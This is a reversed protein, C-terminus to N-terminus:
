WEIEEVDSVLSELRSNKSLVIAGDVVQAMAALDVCNFLDKIQITVGFKQNSLTILKTALLSHGGLNFFNDTIGVREVGLVEQWLACLAIETGTKPAVYENQMETIDFEPLAKRDVKGNANLPLSELFVFTAPVMYDPLRAALYQKYEEIRELRQSKAREAEENLTTDSHSVVYAVLQKDGNDKVAAIVVADKIDSAGTLTNEIEGLEIRFGRIKVQHDIRGIFEINGKRSDGEPLWRVLDGTKYLYKSSTIDGENYFPNVVFKEETLDIRNLYGRAVGTGGVYLEGAIGIPTHNMQEDLVYAQRNALPKGVPIAVDTSHTKPISYCCSFTTNETPGYGNIMNLQPNKDQIAKLSHPNVVDGGVLLNNLHTLPKKYCDVFQDFLGATMWATTIAHDHIFDGLTNMDALSQNQIVLHGGNLLAGWIEFTAADFAIPANQMVVSQDSLEVYNNNEVLSVVALHEVLVGKPKGTSGSTYNVYALNKPHHQLSTSELSDSTMSALKQKIEESDICVANEEAVPMGSLWRSHMLVVNPNADELMHELRSAPYGPDLPLYAGGAKLIALIGVLMDISKEFCLGVLDDSRVKKEEHLYYALRNARQNLETYTLTEENCSVAVKEPYQKVIDEFVQHICKNHSFDKKTENWQQITNIELQPLVSFSKVMESSDNQLASILKECAIHLYNLVREANVSSDIQVNMEFDQGLDDVSVTLPYNTREHGGKFEIDPTGAEHTEASEERVSHRYNFVASFLPAGGKLGSCQQALALPVQEYPILDLLAEQIHGVLEHASKEALNVRIPLTNIFMGLMNEVGATGQMRGSLVSGFVVDDKESTASVVMSWAAHFLVGPSIMMSKAVSRVRESLAQPVLKTAEKIRSGDGQVDTLYFPTTPEEIDSLTETFFVEADHNEQNRLAHAIFERYLVPEDLTEALGAQYAALENHVVEIGVHDTIIHHYQLLLYYQDTGAVEAVKVRMLPGQEIDMWQNEPLSLERMQLEPDRSSDLQFREVGLSAQKYVVQVPNTLDKWVIATRLVDHRNIVFQAAQLFEQVASEGTVSFLAPLVYPDNKENMMHHFLIGEQLPALPYIDQVNEAGGPVKSVIFEIENVDLSILPLMDPTISQCNEPIKNEPAKFEEDPSVESYAIEAALDALTPLAFVQRIDLKYGHSQLRSIVQMILLSHGGLHFFNDSKGVREVGLVDQWISALRKEMETEPALYAAQLSEMDVDPLARRDVKGNHTLPLGDMVIISSPVMYDPLRTLLQHRLLEVFKARGNEDTHISEYDTNVMSPTVYGILRKDGSALSKALVIAENVEECSSLANEIEGLEIRFGRIKVQHDIRGIFEIDGPNGEEDPVCRVLDGTKYLRDSSKQQDELYPNPVFSKETLDPRNLYGRAIGEGGLYLEGVVGPPVLKKNTDLVYCSTNSISKGLAVKAVSNVYEPLLEKWCSFTTNETPGYVHLLHKPKGKAMIERIAQLSCDEGGFLLYDLEKVASPMEIAISNFLATTIFLTNIQKEKITRALLTANLLDQKAVYVLKGGNLLAGWLEFTMADFSMNSAQAVVSNQDLKVYNTNRVLRTVNKQEVMVGKPKGTSGSTYTVYALHSASRNAESVQCSTETCGALKEKVKEDDLCVALESSIPKSHCVEKLTIVTALNADELLYEIRSDPYDRDLPVYAGGAKLIALISVVMEVSRDLCIGVLTDGKVNKEAILFNALQNSRLNLEAYTMTADDFEVAITNPTAEVQAEFLAALSMDNPYDCLTNDWQNLLYDEDEKGLISFQNVATGSDTAIANLLQALAQQMYQAVRSAEVSLDVQVNLEFSDGMDDVSLSLPYNTREHSSVLSAGAEELQVGDSETSSVSHRYNLVASFLSTGGELGSCQQALTLSAQEYSLLEHLSTQVQNVLENANLNGVKVRVPLTNIFVGLMDAAGDTGQLRGSLVTGFVVDDRGSSQSVVMAWAAHFLAAPSIKLQSAVERAKLSLDQPLKETVERIRMGDGQVDVLNFPTTSEELDGLKESFFAEADNEKAQRLAHAVFERYPIPKPLKDANGSQYLALEKQIVELGVHDSIIHHYQLLVYFHGTESDEAIKVQLLPASTLDMMQAHPSSMQEMKTQASEGEAVDIWSVPVNVQRCVVQMPQSYGNWLIATRLVDHRNVVFHIADLLEDISQRSDVRMLTPMVYPDNGESMMHHFLIGEQLPALPYIDQINAAGGPIAAIAKELESESIDILPLMDTTINECADTILNAPASFSKTASAKDLHKALDQLVPTSFLQKTAVSYGKEKLKNGVDLALLSHGGLEFFNDNVSVRELGLIESWIDCLDQEAKDVPAVYEKQSQTFDPEPLAKRDVKGNPSLPMKELLEIYSPIMYEPLKAMLAERVNQIFASKSVQISDAPEQLLSTMAGGALYAILRNDGKAVEKVVVIVEKVGEISELASEIEGLEVRFGRIKIQHDKRGAFEINGDALRKVMDGTKYLRPSSNKDESDFYPNAIFKEATMEPRDLYGKALGVGGIYLEGPIGNPVIALAENLIFIQSNSVPKGIPAITSEPNKDQEVKYLTSCVTAETPGYGNIIVLDEVLQDIRKLDSLQLPEVGVLLRALSVSKNNAELWNLYDKVFFPPLYASSIANIHMYNFLTEANMRTEEDLIHLSRGYLLTSMIEYVSVDFSLSTWLLGSGQEGIPAMLEFDNLLNLVGNSLCEVGKPKGTSGSTYIVYAPPNSRQNIAQSAVNHESQNNLRAKIAEDDICVALSETIPTKELLKVHTLVTRLGADELMYQLREEPYESDLPVYAGGAKLTAFISIVMDISREFCIGVREGPQINKEEILYHALQNAKTNLASYSLENGNCVIATSNPNAEVKEEFLHHLSMDNRFANFKKNWEVVQQKTEIEDIMSVSFVSEDPQALLGSLLKEFRCAMQEITEPKFLDTNFEWNLLMGQENESVTVNLDYKAVTAEQEVPGITLGPLELSGTENNQLVLMVQFLPSHSMSREPQLREVIQEFPVQQHAYADLLTSKSQNLLSSFSPNGNLNSRLILNNIFFGILGAIEPQERNAIPTGVVIDKENSYRSMLVSFAAHLGMFLTAGANQCAQNLSKSISSNIQHQHTAGNFTQQVPRVFDLPLSHVIPLEQLQKQWYDIENEIVEEQLWERQWMAYDAYQVDLAPLPNPKGQSFAQYLASFENVFISMSWGDSAIHHMTVLLVHEDDALKVLRARLMFDSKLDFAQSSEQVALERLAIKKTEGDLGSFDSKEVFFAKNDQILQRPQGEESAKFVTRLSQHREVVASFADDLASYDLTGRLHLGGPINYHASGEELQDMMWLRQQSYSLKLPQSKDVPKIKEAKSNSSKLFEILAAKNEKLEGLLEPTMVGKPADISLGENELKLSIGASALKQILNSLIM